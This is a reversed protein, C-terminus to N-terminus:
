LQEFRAELLPKTHLDVIQEKTSINRVDLEKALVKEHIFHVDIEIHKTKIHFM